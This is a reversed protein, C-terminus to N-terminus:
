LNNACRDVEKILSELDTYIFYLMKDSNMYQSFQLINDKQSPM